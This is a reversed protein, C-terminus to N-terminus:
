EFGLWGLEPLPRTGSRAIAIRTVGCSRLLQALTVAEARSFESAEVLATCGARGVNLCLVVGNGAGAVERMASELVAACQCGDAAFAAFGCIEAIAVVTPGDAKAGTCVLALHVDGSGMGRFAHADFSGYDTEISRVSFPEVIPDHLLRYAVIDSILLL